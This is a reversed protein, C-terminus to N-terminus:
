IVVQRRPPPPVLPGLTDSQGSLHRTGRLPEASHSRSELQPIDDDEGDDRTLCLDDVVPSLDKLSNTLSSQGSLVPTIIKEEQIVDGAATISRPDNRRHDTM